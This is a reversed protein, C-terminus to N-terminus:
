FNLARAKYIVRNQGHLKNQTAKKKARINRGTGGKQQISYLLNSYPSKLAQVAQGRDM